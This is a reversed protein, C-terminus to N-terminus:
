FIKIYAKKRLKQLWDDVQQQREGKVLTTQAPGRLESVSKTVAGKKAACNLLYYNGGQEVVSSTEGPKLAFAAKTLTENITKRDIWGWEGYTDQSSDESYMRALDGFEAGEVLKQRVEEIFKRKGPDGDGRVMIVRLRMQEPQNADMSSSARPRYSSNVKEVTPLSTAGRAAQKRMEQVIINDRQTERFKEMTLGEAQLARLFAQRNGRFRSKVLADVEEDIFHDPISYGKSKFDQLILQRDILDNVAATRVQKIRKTLADDQLSDRAAQEKAATLDRVQKFTIIDNNVVAALGDLVEGKAMIATPLLNLALCALSLLIPRRM